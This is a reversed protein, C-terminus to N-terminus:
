AAVAVVLALLKREADDVRRDLDAGLDRQDPALRVAPRELRGDPARVLLDLHAGGHRRHRVRALGALVVRFAPAHDAPGLLGFLSALRGPDQPPERKASLSPCGAPSAAPMGGPGTPRTRAPSRRSTRVSRCCASASPTRAPWPPTCGSTAPRPM